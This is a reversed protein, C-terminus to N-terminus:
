FSIENGEGYSEGREMSLWQQSSPAMLWEDEIYRRVASLGGFRETWSAVGRLKDKTPIRVDWGERLFWIALRILHGYIICRLDGQSIPINGLALNRLDERVVTALAEPTATILRQDIKGTSRCVFVTDIISSGTGNIHISAGMEAPCPFAASCTLKADLLAV